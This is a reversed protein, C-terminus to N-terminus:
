VIMEVRGRKNKWSNWRKRIEYPLDVLGKPLFIIVLILLVGIIVYRGFTLGALKLGEWIATLAITGIVPGALTGLGGLIVYTVPWFSLDV